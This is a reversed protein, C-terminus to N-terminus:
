MMICVDRVYDRAETQIIEVFHSVDQAACTFRGGGCRVLVTQLPNAMAVRGIDEETLFGQQENIKKRSAECLNISTSRLM